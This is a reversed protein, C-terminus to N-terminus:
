GHYSDGDCEIALRRGDSLPLVFDIRYSGIKFQPLPRLGRLLMRRLVEREFDSDCRAELDEFSEPAASSNQCYSLLKGRADDPPVDAPQFSHFVWLQDRARSAAVNVRRHFDRRTFAAIRADNASAVLSLLVVDREDGQFTYSDGVRLRRRELQEM